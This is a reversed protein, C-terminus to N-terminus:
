TLAGKSEQLVQDLTTNGQNRSQQRHNAQSEIHGPAQVEQIKDDKEKRQKKVRAGVGQLSQEDSEVRGQQM